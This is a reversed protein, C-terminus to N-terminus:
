PMEFGPRTFRRRENLRREVNERQTEGRSESRADARRRLAESEQQRLVPAERSYRERVANSADRAGQAQQQSATDAGVAQRYLGTSAARAADFRGQGGNSGAIFSDFRAMGPTYTGSRGFQEQLLAQRGNFDAGLAANREALTARGLLGAWGDQEGLSSPGKYGTVSPDGRRAAEESTLGKDDYRVTGASVDSGFQNQRASLASQFGTRGSNLFSLLRDQLQSAAGANAAAYTQPNIFGTGRTTPRTAM